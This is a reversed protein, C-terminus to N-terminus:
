AHREQPEGRELPRRRIRLQKVGARWCSSSCRCRRWHPRISSWGADAGRDGHREVLRAVGPRASLCRARAPGAPVVPAVLLRRGASVRRGDDAGGPRRPAHWFLPRVLPVGSRITEAIQSQIYPAIEQHLLAYKRCIADTADDFAWPPVSFQMAPLLASLQTWRVLLEADPEEGGYANGGIMDPLVFPYGIMSLALAQTLVSHLGNDIGWRSWKDWERFLIGQRQARWGCRVETWAFNEAVWAVYRDAYQRRCCRSRRDRPRAARYNGEGADFKFGDVGFENQM